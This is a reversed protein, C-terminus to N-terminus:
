QVKIKFTSAPLGEANILNANTFPKWGYYVYAPRAEAPIIVTDNEIFANCDTNGDTSFGRIITGDATLLRSGAYNFTITVKGNEYRAKLPLPGSPLMKKHYIKNLAWRALREGVAKKNTPHVDNKAGIDSSVAMGTNPILQLLNRQEDRFLPWLQSKYNASDMSSLQVFYFPLGPKGWKKRYDNVMLATLAGYEMVREMEQANSEGQYCIIGKVPMPLLSKIGSEFAFGPKFAHNKGYEDVPADPINEINQKGRERIWVPLANNKLWD